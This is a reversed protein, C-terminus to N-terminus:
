PSPPPWASTKEYYWIVTQGDSLTYENNAVPGLLWKHQTGDWVWWMWYMNENENQSVGNIAVIFSTDMVKAVDITANFVTAGVPLVTGNFWIRTGNGYDIAINVSISIEGLKQRLGQSIRQYKTYETYYYTGATTSAIAWVLLLAAVIWAGKM